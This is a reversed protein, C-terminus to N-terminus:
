SSICFPCGIYVLSNLTSAALNTCVLPLDILWITCSKPERIAAQALPRPYKTGMALLGERSPADIAWVPLSEVVRTAFQFHHAHLMVDQFTTTMKECGGSYFRLKDLFVSM